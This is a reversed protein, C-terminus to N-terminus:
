FLSRMAAPTCSALTIPDRLAPRRLRVESRLKLQSVRPRRNTIPRRDWKKPNATSLAAGWAIAAWRARASLVLCRPSSKLRQSRARAIELKGTMFWSIAFTDPAGWREGVSPRLFPRPHTERGRLLIVSLAEPRHCQRWAIVPSPQAECRLGRPTNAEIRLAKTHTSGM